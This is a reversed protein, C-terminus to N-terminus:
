GIPSIKAVGAGGASTTRVGIVAYGEHLEWARAM